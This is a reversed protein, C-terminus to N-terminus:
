RAFFLSLLLIRGLLYKSGMLFGLEVFKCTMRSLVKTVMIYLFPSVLDSQKMGISSKIFEKPSENM